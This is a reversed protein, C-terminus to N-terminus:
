TLAVELLVALSPGHSWIVTPGKTVAKPALLTVWKIMVTTPAAFVTNALKGAM